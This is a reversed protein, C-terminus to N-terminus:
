QELCRITLYVGYLGWVAKASSNKLRISQLGVTQQTRDRLSPLPMKSSPFPIYTQCFIQPLTTSELNVTADMDSSTNLDEPGSLFLTNLSVTGTTEVPWTLDDPIASTQNGQFLKRM